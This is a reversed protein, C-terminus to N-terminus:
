PAIDSSQIVTSIGVDSGDGNGVVSGDMSGLELGVVRGDHVGVVTGDVVGVVDIGDEDGEKIGVVTGVINM